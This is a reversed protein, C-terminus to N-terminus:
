RASTGAADNTAGNNGSNREPIMAAPEAAQPYQGWSALVTKFIREGSEGKDIALIARHQNAYVIPIDLWPREVLGALNRERNASELGLLFSGNTIKVPLTALPVGKAQLDSKTLIGPVNVIGGATFRAPM